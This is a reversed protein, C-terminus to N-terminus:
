FNKTSAGVLVPVIDGETAASKLASLIEDMTFEEGGFYKEMFEESTEAVHEMIEERITAVSDALDGPVDCEDYSGDAKYKRGAERIVNVYGSFAGGDKIPVQIPAIKNGFEDKLSSVVGDFDANADDM